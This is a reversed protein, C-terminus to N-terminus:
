AAPIHVRFEAGSGVEGGVEIRGHLAQVARWVITLGLGM